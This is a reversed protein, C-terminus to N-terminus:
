EMTELAQKRIREEKHKDLWGLAGEIYTIACSNAKSAGPGAQTAKLRDLVIELLDREVVGHQADDSKRPGSQFTITHVMAEPDDERTVVYFDCASRYVANIGDARTNLREM